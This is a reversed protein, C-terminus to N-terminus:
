PKEFLVSKNWDVACIRGQHGKQRPGKTGELLIQSSHQFTGFYRKNNLSSQRSKVGQKRRTFLGVYMNQRAVMVHAKM